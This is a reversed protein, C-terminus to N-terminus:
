ENPNGVPTIRMLDVSLAERGYEGLTRHDCGTM